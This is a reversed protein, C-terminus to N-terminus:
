LVTIWLIFSCSCGYVHFISFFGAYETQSVSVSLKHPSGVPSSTPPPVPLALAAQALAAPALAAPALQDKTLGLFRNFRHFVFVLIISM